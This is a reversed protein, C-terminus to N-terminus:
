YLVLKEITYWQNCERSLQIPKKNAITLLTHRLDNMQSLIDIHEDVLEIWSQLKNVLEEDKSLLIQQYHSDLLLKFWEFLKTDLDFDDGEVLNGRMDFRDELMNLTLMKYLHDMLQIMETLTIDSNIFKLLTTSDFSCCLAISLVDRIENQNTSLFINANKIKESKNQQQRGSNEDKEISMESKDNEDCDHLKPCNILYKIVQVLMRESFHNYRKILLGIDEARNTKLLIPVVKNTIEIESCGQRELSACYFEFNESMLPHSEDVNNILKVYATDDPQDDIRCLDVQLEGRYIEDLYDIVTSSDTVGKAGSLLKKKQKIHVENPNFEMGEVPDQNEDFELAEEYLGYENINENEVVNNSADIQSGIMSSLKDTTVVFPIVSLNQGMSLYLNENVSWLKFNSLFVKFPIKSQIIKYKINYLIINSGDDNPKSAYIAICNESITQVAIDNRGNIYDIISHLTGISLSDNSMQLNQKFIRKDSWITILNTAGSSSYIMTMGMLKVNQGQRNLKIEKFETLPKLTVEDIIAFSLVKENNIKKVYSFINNGIQPYELKFEAKLSERQSKDIKRSELASDLSECLGDEYIVLINDNSVNIIESIPKHFKIKKVKNIDETDLDWFKVYIGSFVGVYQNRKFDFLVKSSFNDFTSWSKIQKQTSLEIIYVIKKGLTCIVSTKQADASVGLIDNNIPCLKYLSLLKSM